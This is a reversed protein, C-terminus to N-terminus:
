AAAEDEDAPVIDEFGYERALAFIEDGAFDMYERWFGVISDADADADARFGMGNWAASLLDCAAELLGRETYEQVLSKRWEENNM